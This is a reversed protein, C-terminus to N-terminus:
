LKEFSVTIQKQMPNSRRPGLSVLVVVEVLRVDRVEVFVDEVV